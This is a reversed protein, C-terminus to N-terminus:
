VVSLMTLVSGEPLKFGHRVFEAHLAANSELLDAIKRGRESANRANAVEPSRAAFWEKKNNKRLGRLFAFAEPRFLPPM